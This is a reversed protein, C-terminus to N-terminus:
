SNIVIVVLWGAKRGRRSIGQQASQVCLGASPATPLPRPSPPAFCRFGNASFKWIGSGAHCAKASKELLELAQFKKGTFKWVKSNKREFSGFNTGREVPDLYTLFRAGLLFRLPLSDPLRTEGSPLQQGM